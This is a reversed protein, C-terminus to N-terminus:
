LGYFTCSWRHMQLFPVLFRTFSFDTSFPKKDVSDYKINDRVFHTRRYFNIDRLRGQQLPIINVPASTHDLISEQLVKYAVEEKSDYGIYITPINNTM